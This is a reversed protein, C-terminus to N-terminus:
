ETPLTKLQYRKLTKVAALIDSYSYFVKGGIKKKLLIGKKDWNTLTQVSVAPLFLKRAEEPSLMKNLQNQENFTILCRWVIDEIKRSVKKSLVFRLTVPLKSKSKRYEM